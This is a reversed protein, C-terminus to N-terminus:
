RCEPESAMNLEKRGVGEWWGPSESRCGFGVRRKLAKAYVINYANYGLIMRNTLGYNWLQLSFALIGIGRCIPIPLVFLACDRYPLTM